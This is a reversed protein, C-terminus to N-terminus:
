RYRADAGDLRSLERNVAPRGKNRQEMVQRARRQLADNLELLAAQEQLLVIAVVSVVCSILKCSACM